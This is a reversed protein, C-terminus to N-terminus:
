QTLVAHIWPCRALWRRHAAIVNDSFDDTCNDVAFRAFAPHYFCKQPLMSTFIPCNYKPETEFDVVRDLLYMVSKWSMGCRFVDIACQVSLPVVIYTMWEHHLLGYGIDALQRQITNNDDFLGSDDFTIIACPRARTGLVAQVVSLDMLPTHAPNM